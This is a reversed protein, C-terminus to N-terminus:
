VSLFSTRRRGAMEMPLELSCAEEMRGEEKSSHPATGSETYVFGRWSSPDLTHLKSHRIGYFLYWSLSIVVVVIYNRWAVLPLFFMQLSNFTVGLLPVFPFFPAVFPRPFDPFDIRIKWMSVCVITFAVLTGLSIIEGLMELPFLGGILAGAVGCCITANVPTKLRPHVSSLVPPLLGDKALAMVLRPMAFHCAFCVSSLGSITGIDVLIRLFPPAGVERLAMIVPADVNLSTYKVMGTLAFTVLFYLASCILLTYIVGRPLDRQPNRCEQASAFITDFGVNAFFVVGAGRLIGSVGYKGLEGNNPPVFPTLNFKFDAWHTVAFYVGYAFFSGLVMFKVIVFVNNVTATESVGLCLVVSCFLTLMVAPFNFLNGTLFFGNGSVGIPSGGFEPPFVISFERLFSQVSSSWSVSVASGSVLCELTLGVAVIWSTFEGLAVATHTYASGAAPIMAALEGYCLATFLCPFVCLLFSIALAPGAYLAAAQGTIVFIGAGVVAGVGLSVLSRLGLTRRFPSSELSAVTAYICRRRLLNRFFLTGLRSESKSTVDM